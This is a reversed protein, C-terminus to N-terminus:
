VELAKSGSEFQDEIHQEILCNQFNDSNKSSKDDFQNYEELHDFNVDAGEDVYDVQAIPTREQNSKSSATTQELKKPNESM